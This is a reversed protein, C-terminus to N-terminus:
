VAETETEDDPDDGETLAMAVALASEAEDCEADTLTRGQALPEFHPILEILAACLRDAEEGGDGADYGDVLDQAARIAQTLRAQAEAENEYAESWSGDLLYCGAARIEDIAAIMANAPEAESIAEQLNSVEPFPGQVTAQDGARWARGIFRAAQEATPEAESEVLHAQTPRGRKQHLIIYLSM